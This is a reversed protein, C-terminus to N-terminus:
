EQGQLLGAGRKHQPRTGTACIDALGRMCLLVQSSQLRIGCGALSTSTGTHGWGWQGLSLNTSVMDLQAKTDEQARDTPIRLQATTLQFLNLVALKIQVLLLTKQTATSQIHTWCSEQPVSHAGPWQGKDEQAGRALGPWPSGATKATYGVWASSSSKPSLGSHAWSQAEVM